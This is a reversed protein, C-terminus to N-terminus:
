SGEVVFGEARLAARWMQELVEIYRHSQEILTRQAMLVQPYPAAMERYKDLLLTYAQESRPLIDHRYADAMVKAREYDEMVTAWRAELDLRRQAVLAEAVSVASLSAAIGGRNRNALPLSIGAELGLQWGIPTPSTVGTTERVWGASGRLLLDPRVLSRQVNVVAKERAVAAEAARLEPSEAFLRARAAEADIAPAGDSLHEALPQPTLTPDAAAASLRRWAGTRTARAAEAAAHLAAAEAESALVDPRDVIGVNFLQRTTVLMTDGLAALRTAVSLREEAALTEYYRVRLTTRVRLRVTEVDATRVAVEASASARADARKGGLAIDQQIFGGFIGSPSERPRWEDVTAGVVPNTWAGAQEAHGRAEAVRAAAERIAPHRELTQAELVALSLPAPASPSVVARPASVPAATGQAAAPTGTALVCVVALATCTIRM